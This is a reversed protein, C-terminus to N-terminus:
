ATREPQPAASAQPPAPPACPPSPSPMPDTPAAMGPPAGGPAPVAPPIAAGTARAILHAVVGSLAFGTACLAITVEPALAAALILFLMQAIKRPSRRGRLYRNALHPYRVTSVMLYGAALAAFPLASTVLDAAQAQGHERLWGQFLTLGVIACAAAPSPLGKFSLHADEDHTNEVNFRALRLIAGCAYACGFLWAMKAFLPHSVATANAMAVIVGPAVGFSIADCLSDLEAGFDGTTETMRAVRGDLVDFAMALIVLWAANALNQPNEIGAAGFRLSAVQIIAAFGCVANALTFLSPIVRLRERRREARLARVEPDTTGRPRRRLLRLRNPLNM